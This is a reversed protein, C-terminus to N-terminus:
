SNELIDLKIRLKARELENEIHLLGIYRGNAAYLAVLEETKAYLYWPVPFHPPAKRPLLQYTLLHLSPGDKLWEMERGEIRKMLQERDELERQTLDRNVIKLRREMEKFEEDSHCYIGIITEGVADHLLFHGNGQEHVFWPIPFKEPAEIPLSKPEILGLYAKKASEITKLFEASTSPYEEQM